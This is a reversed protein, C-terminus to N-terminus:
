DTARAGVQYVIAQVNATSDSDLTCHRKTVPTFAFGQRALQTWRMDRHFLPTGVLLIRSLGDHPQTSM